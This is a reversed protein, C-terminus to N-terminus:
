DAAPKIFISASFSKGGPLHAKRLSTRQLGVQHALSRLQDASVLSMVAALAHLADHATSSVPSVGEIPDQSVVSCVGGPALWEGMRHFLVAPDVYEVLLAAHILDYESFALDVDLVDGHVLQVTTRLRGLNGRAAAIYEANVDVGLARTTVEPDLLAFDKGTTCGLILVRRPTTAAYVRQFISRLAAAQGIEAMHADYELAPIRLWPNDRTEAVTDSPNEGPSLGVAVRTHTSREREGGVPGDILVV